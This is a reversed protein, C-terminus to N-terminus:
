GATPRGARARMQENFADSGGRPVSLPEWAAGAGVKALLVIQGVHYAYHEKQREIAEFVTHPEGRITVTRALDSPALGELTEFLTTWGADWRALLSARTDGPEREFEADRRRDPKEGDTTLFDRWRSRLNGAVHKVVCAVDNSEPSPRAFFAEDGAQALAREARRRIGRFLEIAHRLYAADDM